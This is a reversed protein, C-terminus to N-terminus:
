AAARSPLSKLHALLGGYSVAMGAFPNDSGRADEMRFSRGDARLLVLVTTPAEDGALNVAAVRQCDHVTHVPMQFLFRGASQEVASRVAAEFGRALIDQAGLAEEFNAAAAPADGGTDQQPVMIAEAVVIGEDRQAHADEAAEVTGGTETGELVQGQDAPAQAPSAAVPTEAPSAEAIPQAEPGASASAEAAADEPTSAFAEVTAADEAAVPEATMAVFQDGTQAIPSLGAFEVASAGIEFAGVESPEVATPADADPDPMADGAATEDGAPQAIAAVQAIVVTEAQVAVVTEGPARDDEAPAETALMDAAMEDLALELEVAERLVDAEAAATADAAAATKEPQAIFEPEAGARDSADADADALAGAPENQTEATGFGPAAAAPADLDMALDALELELDDIAHHLDDTGAAEAPAPSSAEEAAHVTRSAPSADDLVSLEPLLFDDHPRSDM